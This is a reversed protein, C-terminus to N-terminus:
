RTDEFWSVIKYNNVIGGSGLAEDYHLDTIGDMQVTKGVFSGDVTGKVGSNHISVDYDPAYVAASLEGNGGLDFSRSSGTPPTIGYMYLDGPQNNINMVGNGAIKVNGAFYIKAKVGPQLVIQSNGTANVDGTVYIEIYTPAGQPNGTLNLTQNGSLSIASLVYRSAPSGNVANAALNTNGSVVMPTPNISPWSPAAVPIAEQYFDDRETGTINGIGSATGANTAVDGYVHASGANLITGDTAINGHEQRKAVDYLGNTSKTTDRSDYSDIIINADTLNLAGVSMIAQDFSGVPRVIAEIRRSVRPSSVAQSNLIGNTFRDWRLSYKRLRTDQKNDSARAPGMLPMTGTARIRYYQWSTAPDVLQAPSDVNVEITMPTSALGANPITTLGYSTGNVTNWGNWANNPAPYLSKRLEVVALDIGSEAALLSEQWVATQLTNFYKGSAVRLIEAAVMSLVTIILVTWILASGALNNGPRRM